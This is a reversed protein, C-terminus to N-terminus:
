EAAEVGAPTRSLRVRTVRRDEIEEVQLSVDQEAGLPGVVDGPEPVRGLAGFIYGGITDFDEESVNLGYRENV